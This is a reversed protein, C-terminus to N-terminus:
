CPPGGGLTATYVGNQNGSKAKIKEVMMPMIEPRYGASRAAVMIGTIANFYSYYEECFRRRTCHPPSKTQPRKALQTKPQPHRAPFPEGIKLFFEEWRAADFHVVPEYHNCLCSVM